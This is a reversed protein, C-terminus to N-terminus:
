SRSRSPPAARAREDRRAPQRRPRAAHGLLQAGRARLLGRGRRRARRAERARAPDRHPRGHAARHLARRAADRRAGLVRTVQPPHYNGKLDRISPLDAEFHRMVLWLGVASLAALSLAVVALRKTWKWAIAGRTPRPAGRWSDARPTRATGRPLAREDNQEPLPDRPDPM